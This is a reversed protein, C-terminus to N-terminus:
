ACLSGLPQFYYGLCVLILLRANGGVSNCIDAIRPFAPAPRNMHFHIQIQLTTAVTDILRQRPMRLHSIVAKSNELGEGSVCSVALFEFASLCNAVAMKTITVVFDRTLCEVRYAIAPRPSRKSM